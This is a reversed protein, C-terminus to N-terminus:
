DLALPDLGDPSFGFAAGLFALELEAARVITEKQRFGHSEGAFLVYRHPVANAALADRVAESQSPPVVPDQDGQLLLVPVAIKSAHTLPSRAVYVDEDEPLRGILGDLYRAEFDHTDAALTRLDAVGYRSIGAGFVSGRELAGLVTLGGASGGKIALRAADAAGAAALGSAASLVDDIDVIGWADKLRERYARGYGTSGGYNVDLVGIGRSTFFAAQASVAGSVRGTPGGHALIVYPPREGEPASYTPNTPPYDFAHVDGHEGAFTVARPLPLWASDWPAVGGRVARVAATDVDVEWLGSPATASAGFVLVRSGETAAIELDSTLGTQLARVDGAPSIVVLEDSGNTRVAVVRGDELVSFWRQALGWMAGGTDADAPALARVDDGRADAVYLNWRGTPDDAFVLSSGSWAVGVADTRSLVDWRGSGPAGVRLEAADWPMSPHDWALWALLTGDANLVPAAVFDSGAALSVPAAEADPTISVVDRAPVAAGTHRERVALIRGHQFSLGGFRATEDVPTLPVPGSETLRYVRQDSAEVFFVTGDPAVTWAGGGYEHVRSRANWPAALMVDGDRFVATRGGESAIGEGWFVSGDAYAASDFRPSATALDESTIISPWTGYPAITSM